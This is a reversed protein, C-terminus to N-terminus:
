NVSSEKKPVAKIDEETLSPRVEQASCFSYFCGLAEFVTNCHSCFVDVIFCDIKKQRGSTHFSEIKCETRTRQFYSNVMNECSTNKTKEQPRFGNTESNLGWRTDLGTPMPQCMSYPYLQSSAIGVSFKCLNTSKRFIQKMLLQKEQSFSLYVVLLMKDNKESFFKKDKRSRISKEHTSKQLCINALNTLTCGLKLTYIDKDHYHRWLQCLMKM